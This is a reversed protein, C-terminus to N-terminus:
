VYTPPSPIPRGAKVAQVAMSADPLRYEEGYVSGPRRPAEMVAADATGGVDVPTFGADGILRSVVAKADEDDGSLFLVVRDDGTRGAAEAQFTSTLTNFSKVYRAGAMRRANLQAATEGAAPKPGPGFQNTTDIVIKGALSGADALAQQIAGWPVSLMVVEGFSAAEAPSGTSAMPGIERALESLKGPDRSFALKV